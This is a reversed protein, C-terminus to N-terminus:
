PSPSAVIKLWGMGAAHLVSRVTENPDRVTFDGGRERFLTAAEGIVWARGPDLVGVGALDLVISSGEDALLPSLALALTSSTTSDIDGNLWIVVADPGNSIMVELGGVDTVVAM